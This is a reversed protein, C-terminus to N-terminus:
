MSWADGGHISNVCRFYFAFFFLFSIPQSVHLLKPSSLLSLGHWYNMPITLVHLSDIVNAIPCVFHNVRNM